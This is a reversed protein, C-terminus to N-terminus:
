RGGKRAQKLLAILTALGYFLFLGADEGVQVHKPDFPRVDRNSAKLWRVFERAEAKSNSRM